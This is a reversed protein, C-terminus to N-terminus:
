VGVLLVTEDHYLSEETAQSLIELQFMRADSEIKM